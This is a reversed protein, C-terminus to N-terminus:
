GEHDELYKCKSFYVLCSSLQSFDKVISDEDPQPNSLQLVESIKVAAAKISNINELDVKYIGYKFLNPARELSFGIARAIM